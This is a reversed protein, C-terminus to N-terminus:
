SEPIWGRIESDTLPRELKLAELKAAKFLHEMNLRQEPDSAALFAANLAISRINGGAVNLRALKRTDKESPVSEGLKSPFTNKWIKQRQEANPFPFEIIFRLRRMFASDLSDKLNTTLIALGQYDEMRQLLYSVEINAHRDQSDKVDSRKGFLADAEDFLLVAGSLEAADFVKRLNEETEGIYKSVVSSLDIRYLDLKLEKALVEAAMTKGTGSPGYFLVSTGLGRRSKKSFEWDQYVKAKNNVQGIINNLIEKCEDPLILDDFTAVADLPQALEGIQPRALTRCSSWLCQIVHSEESEESEESKKPLSSSQSSQTKLLSTTGQCAAEIAPVTLNFQNVLRDIDSAMSKADLTPWNKQILVEWIQKQEQISLDPVDFTIIPRYREPIRNYTAIILPSEIHDLWYIFANKKPIDRELLALDYDLFLASQTLKAQREWLTLTHELDDPAIPLFEPSLNYLSYGLQHCVHSAIARSSVKNGCLQILPHSESIWLDTLQKAIEDQSQPLNERNDQLDLENILGVLEQSLYPQGILYHIVWESVRLSNTMLSSEPQVRILDLKRLPSTPKTVSWHQSQLDPFLAFALTFTPYYKKMTKQAEACLRLVSFELEASVCLLLVQREFQSLNLAQSLQELQPSTQSSIAKAERSHASSSNERQTYQELRSRMAAVESMLANVSESQNITM